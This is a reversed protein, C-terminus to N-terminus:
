VYALMGVFVLAATVVLLKSKELSIAINKNQTSENTPGSCIGTSNPARSLCDDWTIKAAGTYNFPCGFTSPNAYVPTSNVAACCTNLTSNPSAGCGETITLSSHFVKVSTPIQSRVWM